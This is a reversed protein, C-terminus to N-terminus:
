SRSGNNGVGGGVRVVVRGGVVLSVVTVAPLGPPLCCTIDLLARCSQRKCFMIVLPHNSETYSYAYVNSTRAEVQVLRFHLM